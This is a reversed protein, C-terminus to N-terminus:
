EKLGGMRIGKVFYRQLFPYIMLVPLMGVFIQAARQTRDNVFELIEDAQMLEVDITIVLTRLYSQLPYKAPSNMYIMGDFWRNWHGVISFLILTALAPLSMPLYVSYLIRLHGAGDIYAADEYSEPIDRFFNILVIINFVPVAGPIVLAWISNILGTRHIVMYTPILGGGFLMTIFFIWAYLTRRPFKYDPKSLPYAVLVTMLMNITVGLIVRQISIFFSRFFQAKRMVFKYAEFNIGRPWLFVQGSEVATISSLSISLVHILPFICLVM